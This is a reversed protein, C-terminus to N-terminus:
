WDIAIQFLHSFELHFQMVSKAKAILMNRDYIVIM